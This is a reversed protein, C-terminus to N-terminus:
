LSVYEKLKNGNERRRGSFPHRKWGEPEIKEDYYEAMSKEALELSDYCYCDGYGNPCVDLFLRGNGHLMPGVAVLQGSDLLKWSTYGWSKMEEETFPMKQQTKM